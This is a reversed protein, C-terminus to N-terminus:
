NWSGSSHCFGKNKIITKALLRIIRIVKIIKM